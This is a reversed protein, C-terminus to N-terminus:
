KPNIRDLFGNAYFFLLYGIMLGVKIMKKNM